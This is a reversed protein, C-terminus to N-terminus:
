KLELITVGDEGEGYRGLRFGKVAAHGRLHQQVASRLAGTGKGHIISLLGIGALQANDIFRDVELLAEDVTYGRIDLENKAPIKARNINTRIGASRIKQAQNNKKEEILRLSGVRVRTKIIGAQVEVFGTGDPASLVTGKKDIDAILVSDGPKLPRPLRYAEIAKEKVPDASGEFKKLHAGIQSKALDRLVAADQTDKMKRLADIESFIMQAQARSQELLRKSERRAKELEKEKDREVSDKLEQAQRKLKEAETRALMARGREIEMNQRTTDLRQVVDEFRTDENSVFEKAREIIDDDLGLRKSIAFANSRGPVGILLRYTPKLTEVNFECCANEVKETQLAYVKLEAYHTTAATKAGKDKLYELISVALAAGEVPDTGSGLEDLLVLSNEGCAGLIEIINTMHASFTSLSQEISQEDGIDALVNKFFVVSSFDATPIMLGSCAMLTLLGLTKLSVTKGGTNPGTVVLTDFDRGLSIDIPVAKEPDILPHRAKNLEIGGEAELKPAVAKMKFSLRAKAFIFDLIAATEYSEKISDAFSGVESSLEALIREIEKEEKSALVKLENNAEVAGMPEVFLTSGSGSTDHVLGPVESKWESKVPVVFRGGRITIIADQLYKQSSQSRILKELQNRAKEETRRKARRIRLLEESASDAIEDESVIANDIKDELYKNPTMSNFYGDLCTEISESNEHYRSLSRVAYLVSKIDLLEKPTLSSGIKARHLSDKVDKLGFFSPGGFRLSLRCADETENLAERAAEIDDFPMLNEAKAISAACSCQESLMAIIKDYELAKRSKELLEM